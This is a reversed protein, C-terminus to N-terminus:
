MLDKKVLDILEPLVTMWNSANVSELGDLLERILNEKVYANEPQHGLFGENFPEVSRTGMKRRVALMDYLTQYPGGRKAYDKLKTSFTSNPIKLTKAAASVSGKALIVFIWQFFKSDVKQAANSLVQALDQKLAENEAKTDAFDHGITDFRQDIHEQLARNSIDGTVSGQEESQSAECESTPLGSEHDTGRRGSLYELLGTMLSDFADPQPLLAVGGTDGGLFAAGCALGVRDEGLKVASCKSNKGDWLGPWEEARERPPTMKWPLLVHDGWAGVGWMSWTQEPEGGYLEIGITAKQWSIRLQRCLRAVPHEFTPTAIHTSPPRDVLRIHQSIWQNALELDRRPMEPNLISLVVLGSTTAQILPRLRVYCRLRLHFEMRLREEPTVTDPDRDDCFLQLHELELGSLRKRRYAGSQSPSTSEPSGTSQWVARSQDPAPRAHYYRRPIKQLLPEADKRDSWESETPPPLFVGPQPWFVVVDFDHWDASGPGKMIGAYNCPIRETLLDEEGSLSDGEPGGILLVATNM